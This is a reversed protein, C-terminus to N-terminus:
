QGGGQEARIAIAVGDAEKVTRYRGVLTWRRGFYEREPPQWTRWVEYPEDAQAGRYVISVGHASGMSVTIM